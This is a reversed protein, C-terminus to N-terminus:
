SSPYTFVSNILSSFHFSGLIGNFYKSNIETVRDKIVRDPVFYAFAYYFIRIQLLPLSLMWGVKNFDCKLM